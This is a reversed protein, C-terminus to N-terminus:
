GRKRAGRQLRASSQLDLDPRESYSPGFPLISATVRRDLKAANQVDYRRHLRLLAWLAAGISVPPVVFLLISAAWDKSIAPGLLDLGILTEGVGFLCYLLTLVFLPIGLCVEIIWRM